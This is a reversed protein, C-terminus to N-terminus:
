RDIYEDDPLGYVTFIGLSALVFLMLILFKFLQL